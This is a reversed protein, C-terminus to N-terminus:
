MPAKAADMVTGDPNATCAAMIKAISADTTTKATAKQEDTMSAMASDMEAMKASKEEATMAGAATQEEPSMAMMADLHQTATMMGASDMKTYDACTMTMPDMMTDTQAVAPAAFAVTLGAAAILKTFTNM